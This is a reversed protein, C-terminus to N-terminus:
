LACCAGAESEAWGEARGRGTTSQKPLPGWPWAMPRPHPKLRFKVVLQMHGPQQSSPFNIGSCPYSIESFAGYQGQFGPCPSQTM